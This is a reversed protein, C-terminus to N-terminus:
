MGFHLSIFDLLLLYLMVYEYAKILKFYSINFYFPIFMFNNHIDMYCKLKDSETGKKHDMKLSLFLHQAGQGPGVCTM